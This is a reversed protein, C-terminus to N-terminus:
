SLVKPYESGIRPEASCFTDQILPDAKGQLQNTMERSVNYAHNNTLIIQCLIQFDPSAFQKHRQM